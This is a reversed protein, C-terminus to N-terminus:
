DASHAPEANAEVRAPEGYGRRYGASFTSRDHTTSWRGISPRMPQGHEAALKGFYLGDRFAGDAAFQAESAQVPATVQGSTALMATAGLSAAIVFTYISLKKM